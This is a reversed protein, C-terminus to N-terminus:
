RGTRIGVINDVLALFVFLNPVTDAMVQAWNFWRGGEQKISIYGRDIKLDKIQNWPLQKDKYILGQSNLSLKGFNITQGSQYARVIVPLLRQTVESQIIEGLTEIDKYANSVSFREGDKTRITYVYTTGTYVGNYYRRTISQWVADIDDWRTVKVKKGQIRLLGQEYAEVAKGRRSYWLYILYSGLAGFIFTFILMPQRDPDKPDTGLAQGGVLLALLLIFGGIIVLLIRSNAVFRGHLAGLNATVEQFAQGQIAQTTM